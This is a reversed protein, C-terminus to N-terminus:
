IRPPERPPAIAAPRSSAAALTEFRVPCVAPTAIRQFTAPMATTKCGCQCAVHDALVDQAASGEDAPQVVSIAFGADIPRATAHAPHLASLLVALCLGAAVRRRLGAAWDIARGMM